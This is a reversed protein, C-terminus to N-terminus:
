HGGFISQLLAGEGPGSGLPESGTGGPGWGPCIGRKSTPITFQSHGLFLLHCGWGMQTQRAKAQALPPCLASHLLLLQRCISPKGGKGNPQSGLHPRMVHSIFVQSAWLGFLQACLFDGVWGQTGVTNHTPWPAQSGPGSSLPRLLAVCGPRIACVGANGAWRHLCGVTAMLNQVKIKQCSFYLYNFM